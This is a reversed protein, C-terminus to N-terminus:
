QQLSGPTLGIGRIVAAEQVQQLGDTVSVLVEAMDGLYQRWCEIQYEGSGVFRHDRDSEVLQHGREPLDVPSRPM